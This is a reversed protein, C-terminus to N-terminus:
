AMSASLPPLHLSVIEDGADDFTPYSTLVLPDHGPILHDPSDALQQLKVYGDLMDGVHLVIPFPSENHINDYFHSADSALVVWGRATHVRVAQLGKTHGGVHILQIGPAFEADGSYFKVRKEYVGRVVDVVDDVAYAHRLLDYQMYRGTAYQLEAEQLHMLANPLLKINGAHDYHLHTLIVDSVQEPTIGLGSLAAIPCRLFHRKREKAAAENFGTDVVIVRDADRNTDQNTDRNADRIVWVFYDMPMPGEHPDYVMFNEARKRAVTAYRIAYVEYQPLAETNM